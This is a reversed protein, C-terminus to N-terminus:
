HRWSRHGGGRARTEDVVRWAPSTKAKQRPSYPALNNGVRARKLIDCINSQTMSQFRRGRDYASAQALKNNIAAQDYRLGPFERRMEVLTDRLTEETKTKRARLARLRRLM